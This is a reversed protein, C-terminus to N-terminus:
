AAAPEHAARLLEYCGYIVAEEAHKAPLIPPIPVLDTGFRQLEEILLKGFRDFHSGVGGGIIVADPQITALLDLMGMAFLPVIERWTAEDSIEAARKHYKAVIASGSAFDEWAMLKGDHELPMQGGESDAFDPDITGNTIIGTGIGTSITIYLVKKFENKVLLAESLGALNADNEVLVRCNFIKELDDRIPAEHWPLNGYSLGMGRVRDIKGPVAVAVASADQDAKLERVQATLDELFIKYNQDTAFKASRAVQGNEDFVALLTKTGGIDIAVYM